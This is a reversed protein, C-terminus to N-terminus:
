FALVFTLERSDSFALSTLFCFITFALLARSTDVLVITNFVEDKVEVNSGLKGRLPMRVKGFVEEAVLEKGLEITCVKESEFELSTRLLSIAAELM